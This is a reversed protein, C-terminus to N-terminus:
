HGRVGLDQGQRPAGRRGQGVAGGVQGQLSPGRLCYGNGSADLLMFSVSDSGQEPGGWGWGYDLSLALTKPNKVETFTKTLPGDPKNAAFRAVPGPNNAVNKRSGFCTGTGKAKWGLATFDGKAFDTNVVTQAVSRAEPWGAAVLMAAAIAIAASKM